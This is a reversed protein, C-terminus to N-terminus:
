RPVQRAKASFYFRPLSISRALTVAIARDGRATARPAGRTWSRM